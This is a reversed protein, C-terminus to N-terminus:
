FTVECENLAVLQNNKQLRIVFARERKDDVAEVYGSGRITDVWRGLLNKKNTM